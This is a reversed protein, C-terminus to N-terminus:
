RSASATSSVVQQIHQLHIAMKRFEEELRMMRLDMEPDKMILPEKTSARWSGRMSMEKVSM